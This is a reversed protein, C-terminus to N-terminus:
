PVHWPQLGHGWCGCMSTEREREGERGERFIFLYNNGQLRCRNPPSRRGNGQNKGRVREPQPQRTDARPLRPPCSAHGEGGSPRPRLRQHSKRLRQPRLPGWATVSLPPFPLPLLLPFTSHLTATPPASGAQCPVSPGEAGSLWVKWPTCSPLVLPLVWFHPQQVFFLLLFLFFFHPTSRGIEPPTFRHQLSPQSLRPSSCPFPPTGFACPKLQGPPPSDPCSSSWAAPGGRDCTRDCVGTEGGGCVSLVSRARPLYKDPTHTLQKGRSRPPQSVAQQKPSLM